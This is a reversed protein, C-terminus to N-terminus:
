NTKQQKDKEIFLQCKKGSNQFVVLSPSLRTKFGFAMCGYPANRDFTIYHYICKYCNRRNQM